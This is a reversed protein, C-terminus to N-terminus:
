IQLLLNNDAAGGDVKLQELPVGSDQKIANVVEATQLAIAELAARAIHAKTIYRTLGVMAGRADPRWHPAFLGSFAPVIYMGGSDTVTKALNEIEESSDIIQLN